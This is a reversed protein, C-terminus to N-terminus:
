IPECRKNWTTRCRKPRKAGYAFSSFGRRIACSSASCGDMAYLYLQRDKESIVSREQNADAWRFVAVSNPPAPPLQLFRLQEEIEAESLGGEIWDSCFRERLVSLNKVIQRSALELHEQQKRSLELASQVNKLVKNLQSPSAPKLIYDDVNLRIAEQAYRFEDHGTIIVIRCEPISERIKEILALGHIIPMNLDVLMVDVRHRLALELAEEGDEAEAVVEMMRSSWDVAEKIGDRIIPEDDAILVKWRQDPM